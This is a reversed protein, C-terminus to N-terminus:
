SATVGIHPGLLHVANEIFSARAGDSSFEFTVTGRADQWLKDTLGKNVRHSGEALYALARLCYLVARQKTHVSATYM